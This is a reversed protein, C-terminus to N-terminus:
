KGKKNSVEIRKLAAQLVRDIKDVTRVTPSQKGSELRCITEQRVGARRALETQTLGAATRGAIIKRAISVRAYEVAPRNGHEDAPPFEPLVVTDAWAEAKRALRELRRWEAVEVMVFLKSGRKVIQQAM